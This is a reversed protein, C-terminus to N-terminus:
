TAALAAGRARFEAIQGQMAAAGASGSFPRQRLLVDVTAMHEVVTALRYEGPLTFVPAIQNAAGELSGLKLYANGVVIQFHAWTGFARPLEGQWFAKAQAAVQLAESPRGLSLAAGLRYLAQRGPPCSWVSDPGARGGDSREACAIAARARRQQGAAAAATAEQYALLTRLPVPAGRKLGEAALDAAEAHGGRWRLIQARASFAAAPSSGAEEALVMAAEGCAFAAEDRHVDGLLQCLHALLEADIRLLERTQHVRQRGGQLLTAIMGHLRQVRSLMVAPPFSIHDEAATVSAKALYGIVDDSINTSEVWAILNRAAEAADTANFASIAAAPRGSIGALGQWALAPARDCGLASGSDRALETAPHPSTEAMLLWFRSQESPSARELATDLIAQTDPRPRVCAGLREWKSVTRVAVGLHGAYARVSLRLARRLVGAEHGTWSRVPVM